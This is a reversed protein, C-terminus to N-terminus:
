LSGKKLYKHLNLEAVLFHTFSFLIFNKSSVIGFIKTHIHRLLATIKARNGAM